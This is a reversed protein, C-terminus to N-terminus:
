ATTSSTPTTWDIHYRYQQNVQKTNATLRLIVPLVADRVVQAVPGPAKNSNIRAAVKIIREV